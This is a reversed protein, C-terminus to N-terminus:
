GNKIKTALDLMEKAHMKTTDTLNVGGLLRSLEEIREEFSLKKIQTVTRSGHINKYISFHTDALAAIQPLHSVCIIQHEKSINVIKEGVVQATRGSIGTDIEDFILCPIKDYEALISKFALMIRSMEGGSVIKSLPKLDEGPNTSILFEVNDFGEPTFHNYKKFSVKFLVNSMNLQKLEGSLSEELISAIEKRKNSLEECKVELMKEINEIENKIQSIEKENNLLIQFKEYIGNRYAIIEDINNGYKKKLKNITDLREELFVLREEDVAINDLYYRLDGSLDQLEFGINTFSEYYKKIEIDFNKIGGILSIVKNIADIISFGEYEKSQLINLAESINLEIEKINSLKDYEKAIEEEEEKSLKANDIEEIQYKLLDIERDKEIEDMSLDKLKKRQFVLENYYIYIDEKLTRFNDDGFSDIIHIHNESNLLSQHEHQGHIDILYKTVNNLMGLTVTRGNIRSISRGTSYIERTILLYDNKENEIGYEDLIKNIESSKELYFLGELIAKDCGTRILDKNARGGLIMGIADVIVSKGAGTEGTLVNFGKSFNIHLKEAVAFNEINLEVLM